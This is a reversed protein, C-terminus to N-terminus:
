KKSQRTNYIAVLEKNSPDYHKKEKVSTAREREDLLAMTKESKFCSWVKGGRGDDIKLVFINEAENYIAFNDTGQFFDLIRCRNIHLLDILAYINYRATKEVGERKHHILGREYEETLIVCLRKNTSNFASVISHLVSVYGAFQHITAEEDKPINMATRGMLRTSFNIIHEVPRFNQKIKENTKYLELHTMLKQLSIKALNESATKVREFFYTRLKEEESDNIDFKKNIILSQYEDEKMYPIGFHRAYIGLLIIMMNEQLSNVIESKGYCACAQILTALANSNKIFKDLKRKKLNILMLYISPIEIIEHINHAFIIKSKEKPLHFSHLTNEVYLIIEKKIEDLEAFKDPPIDKYIKAYIDNELNNDRVITKGHFITQYTRQKKKKFLSEFIM